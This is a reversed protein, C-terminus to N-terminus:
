GVLHVKWRHISQTSIAVPHVILVCHAFIAIKWDTYVFIDQLSYVIHGRKSNVLLLLNYIVSKSYIEKSAAKM